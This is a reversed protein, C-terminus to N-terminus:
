QRVFRSPLGMEVWRAQHVLREQYFPAKGSGRGLRWRHLVTGHDCGEPSCMRPQNEAASSHSVQSRSIAGVETCRGLARAKRGIVNPGRSASCCKGEVVALGKSFGSKQHDGAHLAAASPSPFAQRSQWSRSCRVAGWFRGASQIPPFSAHLGFRAHSKNLVVRM